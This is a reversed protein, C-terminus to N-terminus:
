WGAHDTTPIQTRPGNGAAIRQQAREGVVCLNTNDRADLAMITILPVQGIPELGLRLPLDTAAKQV